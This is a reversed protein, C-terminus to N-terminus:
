MKKENEYINFNVNKLEKKLRNLFTEDATDKYCFIHISPHKSRLLRGVIQLQQQRNAPLQIIVGHDTDKLNVGEQLMGVVYLKDREHKNFDRIKQQPKRIKSHMAANFDDDLANCQEISSCFVIHRRNEMGSLFDRVKETKSEGLFLKRQLGTRKLRDTIKEKRISDPEMDIELKLREIAADYNKSIEREKPTMDLHIVNIEPKAIIKESISTALDNRIINIGSFIPFIEKLKDDMITASLGIFRMDPNGKKMKALLKRRKASLHHCEDAIVVGYRNWIEKELSAYCVIKYNCFDRGYKEIEEEWLNIHATESVLILKRVPSGDLIAIAISTKGMGTALNLVVNKGYQYSKIAKERIEERTM